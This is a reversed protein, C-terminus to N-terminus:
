RTASFNAQFAAEPYKVLMGRGPKYNLSPIWRSAQRDFTSTQYAQNQENWVLIQAGDIPVAGLADHVPGPKPVLPGVLADGQPIARKLSGQALEGTFAVHLKEKGNNRVIFGTGPPIDPLAPTWNNDLDDFTHANQRGDKMLIIQVAPTENGLIAKRAAPQNLRV